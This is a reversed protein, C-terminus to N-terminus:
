IILSQYYYISHIIFVQGKIKTKCFREYNHAITAEEITKSRLAVLLEKNTAEPKSKLWLQFLKRRKHTSDKGDAEIDDLHRDDLQLQVGLEYWKTIRVHELLESLIPKADLGRQGAM